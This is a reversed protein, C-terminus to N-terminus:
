RQIGAPMRQQQQPLRQVRAQLRPRFRCQGRKCLLAPLHAHHLTRHQQDRQARRRAHLAQVVIKAIVLHIPLEDAEVM